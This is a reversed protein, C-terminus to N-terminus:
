ALLARFNEACQFLAQTLNFRIHGRFPKAQVALDVSDLCGVQFFQAPLNWAVQRVGVQNASAAQL